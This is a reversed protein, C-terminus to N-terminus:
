PHRRTTPPLTWVAPPPKPTEGAQPPRHRGSAPAGVGSGVSRRNMPQRRTTPPLMRGAPPPKPTEGAQPARHRGSAPAGVGSGVHRRKMPPPNYSGPVTPPGSERGRWLRYRHVARLAGRQQAPQLRRELGPADGASHFAAGLHPVNQRTPNHRARHPAGRTGTQLGGGPPSAPTGPRHAMLAGTPARRWSCPTATPTSATASACRKATPPSYPTRGASPRSWCLSRVGPLHFNTLMASVVRFRHGPLILLSTSGAIGDSELVRPDRSGPRHHDRDGGGPPGRGVPRPDGAPDCRSPLVERGGTRPRAPGRGTGPRPGTASTFSWTWSGSAERACGVSCRPNSTSVPPPLRWPVRFVPTCRRIASRTWPTRGRPPQPIAASTPRCPPGDSRSPSTSFGRRAPSSGSRASGAASIREWRSASGTRM